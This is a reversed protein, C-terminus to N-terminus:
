RAWQSGRSDIPGLGHGKPILSSAHIALPALALQAAGGEGGIRVRVKHQDATAVAHSVSVPCRGGLAALSWLLPFLLGAVSTEPPSYRASPAAAAPQHSGSAGRVDWRSLLAGTALCYTNPCRLV